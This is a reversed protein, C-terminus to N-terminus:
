VPESFGFTEGAILLLMSEVADLCDSKQNANIGLVENKDLDFYEAVADPHWSDPLDKRTVAVLFPVAVRSTIYDFINRAKPFTEPQDGAVLLVLGLAGECLIEWMFDFRDQGPTGYVNLAIGNLNLVGYDMAVTTYAKGLDESALVDTNVTKQESLNAIFTTKGAGVPGAVILKLPQQHM